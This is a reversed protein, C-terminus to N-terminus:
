SNSAKAPMAHLKKVQGDAVDQLKAIRDRYFRIHREVADLSRKIVHTAKTRQAARDKTDSATHSDIVTMVEPAAVEAARSETELLQM